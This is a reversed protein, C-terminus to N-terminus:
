LLEDRFRSTKQKNYELQKFIGRQISTKLFAHLGTMIIPFIMMTISTIILILETNLASSEEIPPQKNEHKM